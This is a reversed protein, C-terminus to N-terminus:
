YLVSPESRDADDLSAVLDACGVSRTTARLLTVCGGIVLLVGLLSAISVTWQAGRALTQASRLEDRRSRQVAIIADFTTSLPAHIRVLEDEFHMLRAIPEDEYDSMLALLAVVYQDIDAELVPGMAITHRADLAERDRKMEDAIATVRLKEKLDLSIMYRRTSLGLERTQGRLRDLLALRHDIDRSQRLQNRTSRLAVFATVASLLIVLVITSTGLVLRKRLYPTVSQFVPLPYQQEAIYSTSQRTVNQM